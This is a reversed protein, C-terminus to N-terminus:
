CSKSADNASNVRVNLYSYGMGHRFSLAILAPPPLKAENKGSFQNVHCRGKRYRFFFTLNIMEWEIGVMHHLSQSFQDLPDQSVELSCTRYSVFNTAM